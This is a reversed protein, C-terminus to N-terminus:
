RSSGGLRHLAIGTATAVNLSDIGPAMPIRVRLQAEALAGATLGAGENGVLLAIRRPRDIAEALVAIDAASQAPTLAVIMFGAERVIGLGAPWDRIRAHPVQLSAGMSVRIAKRYLPDCCGPGLLVAAAAFALANRFVAGVNDANTVDELVVVLADGEAPLLEGPGPEATREGLALCGRHLNFGTIARMSQKGTLYIPIREEYAGIVDALSERAQETVLLSRVPWRGLSLLTRVVLRGEAIFLGGRRLLEPDSVGCYDTLRPDAPDQVPIIM